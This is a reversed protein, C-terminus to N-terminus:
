IMNLRWFECIDCSSCLTSVPYGKWVVSVTVLSFLCFYDRYLCSLISITLYNLQRPSLKVSRDQLLKRWSKVRSRWVCKSSWCPCTQVIRRGGAEVPWRLMPPPSLPSILTSSAGLQPSLPPPSTTPSSWLKGSIDGIMEPRSAEIPVGCQKPIQITKMFDVKRFSPM